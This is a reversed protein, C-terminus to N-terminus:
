LLLFARSFIDLLWRKNPGNLRIFRQVGDTETKVRFEETRIDLTRCGDSQRNKVESLNELKKQTNRPACVM